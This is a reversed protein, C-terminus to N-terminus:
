GLLTIEVKGHGSNEGAANSQNTGSNFSGAGGGAPNGNSGNGGTYGGGGGAAGQSCWEGGGGGGFGGVDNTGFGSAACNGAVGGLFGNQPSRGGADVGGHGSIGNSNFGAGGAGGNSGSSNGGSGITPVTFSGGPTASTTNSGPGGNNGRQGGGGGGAIVLIDNTTFGTENLVYSGGGGGGSQGNSIGGVQGVVIRLKTGAELDFTGEIKAGLGGLGSSTGAKGGQAGYATIRYTGNRPVTWLQIGDETNFFETDNKWDDVELGSLGSRAQALSPGLRGEQGGNTFTANTFPYLTSIARPWVDAYLYQSRLDFVGSFKDAPKNGLFGGIRNRIGRGPPLRFRSM